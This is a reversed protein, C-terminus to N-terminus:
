CNHVEALIILMFIYQMGKM